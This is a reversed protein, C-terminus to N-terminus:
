DRQCNELTGLREAACLLIRHRWFGMEWNEAERWVIDRFHGVVHDGARPDELIHPESLQAPLLHAFTPQESCFLHSAIDFRERVAGCLRVGGLRLFRGTPGFGRETPSRVVRKQVFPAGALPRRELAAALPWSNCLARADYGFFTE